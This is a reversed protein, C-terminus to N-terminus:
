ERSSGFSSLLAECGTAGGNTGPHSALTEVDTHSLAVGVDAHLDLAQRRAFGGAPSLDAHEHVVADHLLTLRNSSNTPLSVHM